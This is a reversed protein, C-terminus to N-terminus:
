RGSLLRSLVPHDAAIRTARFLAKPPAKGGQETPEIEGGLPNFYDWVIRGDRSVEFVQGPAGSCILTNGNPLRQAGSIFASFFRARDAYSWSPLAPGFPQGALRTVGRATGSLELPLIVEEVSSWDGDPRKGGNNLILLRLEGAQAGPPADPQAGTPESLQAGRVWTADHQYFLRQAGVDIASSMAAASATSPSGLGYNKPNGWRWLLDGGRGFRGGTSGAAETTTTSHDIVWVECLHPTSLAILDTVPDYDVSNTHLWDPNLKRPAGHPGPGHPAAGADADRPPAGGAYGLQAMQEELEERRARDEASEEAPKPKYRHDANIDIRGPHDALRGYNPKAPDRDQVLHDWAHWEWVVEAGHSASNAAGDHAGDHAGPSRLPRLEVIVDPWFGEDSVADADRGRALAEERTRHEWAIVLVNGNPLPQAEHHQTREASALQYEWVVKSDWDLEQINGGLGGGHFRPNDPKQGCRLLNGNPLLAVSAGPPDPTNWTHLVNGDLAVLHVQRSNLPAIITWGPQAEPSNHRLGREGQPEIGVPTRVFGPAIGAQSVEPPASQASLPASFSVLLSLTTLLHLQLM